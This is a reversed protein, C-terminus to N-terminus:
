KRVQAIYLVATGAPAIRETKVVAWVEVGVRIKDGTAPQPMSGNEAEVSLYVQQDGTQILTGDIDAQKYGLVVGTGTTEVDPKEVMGVGPIYEPEGGPQILTVPGGADLLAAHASEAIQPYDIAM